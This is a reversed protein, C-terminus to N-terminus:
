TSYERIDRQRTKTPANASVFSMKVNRLFHEAEANGCLQSFTEPPYFFGSLETYAPSPLMNKWGHQASKGGDDIDSPEEDDSPNDVEGRLRQGGEGAASRM